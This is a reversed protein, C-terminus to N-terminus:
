QQFTNQIERMKFEALNLCQVELRRVSIGSVYKICRAATVYEYRTNLRITMKWIGNSNKTLRLIDSLAPRVGDFSWRGCRGKEAAKSRNGAMIVGILANKGKVIAANPHEGFTIAM